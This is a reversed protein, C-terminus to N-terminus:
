TKPNLELNKFHGKRLLLAIVGYVAIDLWTDDIGENAPAEGKQLLHQLRRVKDNVRFVIGLEGTDLINGKGYDKHKKIFTDLMKKLEQEFAQDLYQPQQDSNPESKAPQPSQAPKAPQPSRAPETQQPAQYQQPASTQTQQPAQSQQSVSAKTKQPAQSQDQTRTQNKAQTQNKDSTM